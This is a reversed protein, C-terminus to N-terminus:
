QNEVKKTVFQKYYYPTLSIINDVDSKELKYNSFNIMDELKINYEQVEFDPKAGIFLPKEIKSAEEYSILKVDEIIEFSPALVEWEPPKHALSYKGYHFFKLFQRSGGMIVDVIGNQTFAMMELLNLPVIQIEPISVKLGKAFTLFFRLSTFSGPGNIFVFKSIENFKVGSEDFLDYFNGSIQRVNIEKNFIEKNNEVVWYNTQDYFTFIYLDKM